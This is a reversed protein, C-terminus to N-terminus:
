CGWTGVGMGHWAAMRVPGNHPARHTPKPARTPAMPHDGDRDAHLQRAACRVGHGCRSEMSWGTQQGHPQMNGTDIQPSTYRGEGERVLAAYRRRPGRHTDTNANREDRGTRM